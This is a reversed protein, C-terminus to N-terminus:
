NGSLKSSDSTSSIQPSPKAKNEFLKEFDKTYSISVGQRTRRGIAAGSSSTNVDLSSKNFIVARLKRDKSLVIQISIDPLWQFTGTQAAASSLNFDLDGGFTVIIKGNLLSQNIKLNVSQRDLKNSSNTGVGNYLLTSSSYTSTGIDFQLSKDGTLKYLVNSLLKNLEATIKQSITNLGLSTATTNTAAQGYPAFADFVILYTVQKLMENDDSQLRNLFLVFDHDNKVSSNAPFDLRFHIDPKDLKGRLEAIVYVDGRYGKITGSLNTGQNSILDNLSVRSATYQADVHINAKYPDGNWEIYSEADPMLDFPKKIFSQFNFDYRGREINYRGNMTMNGNAPIKIQLRGNGTAKIVDGTLEDLIVDIQAQNNATLDLDINLKTDTNNVPAKMETGYQKFVIYDASTSARSNSTPIFIHTTDNVEGTITMKMNEQPGQLNLTAKGIAKGYFSQNDKATTNLLLLKDTFMEFDFSMNQLHQEYLKGRVTATNNLPDKIQFEGFNLVGDQFNFVASDITYHVKTYDVTLGGNKLTVNGLLDPSNPNGKITLTGYAFGDIDSFIGNLFQNVIGIKTGNLNFSVSLPSGTSDNLNYNGKASFNYTKNNSLAEYNIKGTAYDYLGKITVIGVSDDNLRFQEAKLDAEMKFAGYFDRLFINGNILGELTPQKTIMPTFDGMNVNKLRVALNSTNSDKQNVTEVTVEQFGQTFKVNQASAFHKRIVIEGQKELDWKKDNIVFSSPEFNIRVGDPLTFIDANLEADNLTNNASTSLHLVSHDNQSQINLKTNPFYTSDGLYIKEINGTLNLSNFDGKGNIIANELKYRDFKVYPINTQLYFSGSDKTNIGGTISAYNLGSLKANIIQAYKEFDRTQIAVVFRQDKPTTKPQNIYSPYYHSLFAQFSNSLDLINYQGSVSVDFENSQIRLIKERASDFSSNVTLSDFELRTSDHLLSANLIKVSGVFEDINKGEFNLDFLGTLEFKENTLKLAQFNAKALDGLVNFKPQEPKLDIEINSTFDFNSDSAKFDGTFYKNQITGNFTLNSYSYNNFQFQDFSGDLTTKLKNMYFSSGAIKGKFSVLGISSTNIFKGLNFQKTVVTGNYIPEAKTPFKMNVNAYIGGIATSINGNSSFNNITGSFTGAFRITGLAALNPSSINKISPFVSAVDNFTTQLNGNSFNIITKDIDPLGKMALNGSAYSNNGSRLFLNNAKFNNVTGFFNGSIDIQKKWSQLQPAFYAIDDSSVTSNKFRADMMVKEVYYNMDNNFDSFKMAYYDGLRSKNTQIDLKAFEMIQPTLKFNAKLKKVEFGSREKASLFINAKITDKIFNLKQISCNIKSFLLHTSNFVNPELKSSDLLEQAFSGNTIKISDVLVTLGAANFYLGTDFSKKISSTTDPNLGDFNQISFFPNDLEIENIKYINKDFDVNDADLLLSGTKIIMRQGTWLDNNLFTVNKFDLKKVNLQIGKGASDKSTKSSPKSSFYDVLFQYNWVSDKRQQKIIADELGIYTLDIKDKLFFWDTVRMRLAGAYLLTDKQKDRILTGELNMKDFFSFSVNKIRVETNLDKSLRATVKGVIFNQVTETQLLLWAFLIIAILILFIRGETKLFKKQFNEKQLLLLIIFLVSLLFLFISAKIYFIKEPIIGTQWIILAPLLIALLIFLVRFTIKIIEKFM